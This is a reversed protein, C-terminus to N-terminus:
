GLDDKEWAPLPLLDLVVRLAALVLFSGGLEKNLVIVDLYSAVM